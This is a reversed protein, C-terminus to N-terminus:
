YPCGHYQSKYGLIYPDYLPSDSDKRSREERTVSEASDNGQSPTEESSHGKTWSFWKM